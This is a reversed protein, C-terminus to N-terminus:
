DVISNTPGFTRQPLAVNAKVGSQRGGERICPIQGDSQALKIVKWIRFKYKNNFVIVPVTGVIHRRQEDRQRRVIESAFGVKAIVIDRFSGVIMTAIDVM